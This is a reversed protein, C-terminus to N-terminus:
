VDELLEKQLINIQTQMKNVRKTIKGKIVRIIFIIASLFIIYIFSILISSFDKATKKLWTQQNDIEMQIELFAKKATTKFKSLIHYTINPLLILSNLHTEITYNQKPSILYTLNTCAAPPLIINSCRVSKDCPFKVITPGTITMIDPIGHSTSHWECQLPANSPTVYWVNSKINMINPQISKSKEVQCENESSSSFGLLWNICPTELLPITIPRHPCQVLANFTCSSVHIDDNWLIVKKEVNNFGFIKPLNSYVYKNGDFLVPLPTLKYVHYLSSQERSLRRYITSVALCPPGRRMMGNQPVSCSKLAFITQGVIMENFTNIIDGVNESIYSKSTTSIILQFMELIQEDALFSYGVKNNFVHELVLTATNTGLPALIQTDRNVVPVPTKISSLNSHHTIYFMDDIFYVISKSKNMFQDVKHYLFIRRIDQQIIKSINKRNHNTQFPYTYPIITGIEVIDPDGSEVYECIDANPSDVCLNNMPVFVHFISEELHGSYVGITDLVFGKDVNIVISTSEAKILFWFEIMFFLVPLLRSSIM